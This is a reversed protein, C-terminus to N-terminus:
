VTNPVSTVGTVESPEGNARRNAHINQVLAPPEPDVTYMQAWTDGFFWTNMGDVPSQRHM